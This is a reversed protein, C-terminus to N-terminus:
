VCVSARFLSSSATLNWWCALMAIFLDCSVFLFAHLKRYIQISDFMFDSIVLNNMPALSHALLCALRFHLTTPPSIYGLFVKNHHPKPRLLHHCVVSVFFFHHIYRSVALFIISWVSHMWLITSFPKALSPFLCLYPDPFVRHLWNLVEFAIHVKCKLFQIPFGRPQYIRHPPPPKVNPALFIAHLVQMNSSISPNTETKSRNRERERERVKGSNKKRKRLNKKIQITPIAKMKKWPFCIAFQIHTNLSQNAYGLLMRHTFSFANLSFIWLMKMPKEHLSLNRFFSFCAMLRIEIAPKRVMRSIQQHHFDFLDRIKFSMKKVMKAGDSLSFKRARANVRRIELLHKEERLRSLFLAVLKVHNPKWYLLEM